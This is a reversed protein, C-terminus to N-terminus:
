NEVKHTAIVAGMQQYQRYRERGAAKIRADENLIELVREVQPCQSSLNLVTKQWQQPVTQFGILIKELGEGSEITDLRHPIFSGARFTWLLDDIWESQKLTDTLVYCYQGSRYIKELLKCAFLYRQQTSESPLLYFDVNAM